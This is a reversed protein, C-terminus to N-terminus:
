KSSLIYVIIENILLNICVIELINTYIVITCYVEFYRTINSTGM